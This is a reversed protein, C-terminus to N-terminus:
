PWASKRANSPPSRCGSAGQTMMKAQRLQRLLTNDVFVHGRRLRNAATFSAAEASSTGEQCHLLRTHRPWRLDERGDCCIRHVSMRYLQKMSACPPIQKAPISM